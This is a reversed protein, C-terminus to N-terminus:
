IGTLATEKIINPSRLVPQAQVVEAEDIAAVANEENGIGGGNPIANEVLFPRWKIQTQDFHASCVRKTKYFKDFEQPPFIGLIECWQDRRNPTIL